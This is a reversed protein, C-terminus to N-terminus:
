NVLSTAISSVEGVNWKCANLCKEVPQSICRRKNEAAEMTTSEDPDKTDDDYNESKDEEDKAEMTTSEDPDKTDDDYNESKDEEDKKADNDATKPPLTTQPESIPILHKEVKVDITAGIVKLSSESQFTRYQKRLKENFEWVNVSIAVSYKFTITLKVNVTPNSDANAEENNPTFTVDECKEGNSGSPVIKKFNTLLLTRNLQKREDVLEGLEVDDKTWELLCWRNGNLQNLVADYCRVNLNFNMATISLIGWM